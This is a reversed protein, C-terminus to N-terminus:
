LFLVLLGLTALIVSVVSLWQQMRHMRSDLRRLIEQQGAQLEQIGRLVKEIETLRQEVTLEAEQVRTGVRVPKASLDM